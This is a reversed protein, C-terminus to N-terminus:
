LGRRWQALQHLVLPRGAVCHRETDGNRMCRWTPALWPPCFRNQKSQVCFLNPATYHGGWPGGKRPNQRWRSCRCMSPLSGGTRPQFSAALITSAAKLAAVLDLDPLQQELEEVGGPQDLCLRGSHRHHPAAAPKWGRDTRSWHVLAPSSVPCAEQTYSTTPSWQWSCGSRAAAPLLAEVLLQKAPAWRGALGVRLHQEHPTKLPQRPELHNLAPARPGLPQLNQVAFEPTQLRASLSREAPPCGQTSSRTASSPWGRIWRGRELPQAIWTGIVGGARRPWTSRGPRASPAPGPHASHFDPAGCASV